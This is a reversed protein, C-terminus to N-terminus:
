KKAKPDFKKDKLRALMGPIYAIYSGMAQPLIFQLQLTLTTGREEEMVFTRSLGSMAAVFVVVWLM